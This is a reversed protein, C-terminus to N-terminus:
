YMKVIPMAEGKRKDFSYAVIVRVTHEKDVSLTVGWRNDTWLHRM